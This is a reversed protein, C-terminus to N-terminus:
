QNKEMWRRAAVEDMAASQRRQQVAAQEEQWNDKHKVVAELERTAEILEAKARAIAEKQQEVARQAREISEEIGLEDSRLGSVYTEFTNMQALTAEGSSVRQDHRACAERRRAVAAELDARKKAVFDERRKLEALEQAYEDEAEEQERERLELLVQLDYNDSM